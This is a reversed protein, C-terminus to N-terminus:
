DEKEKENPQESDASIETDTEPPCDAKADVNFYEGEDKTMELFIDELSMDDATMQYIPCKADALAYFVEERVDVRERTGICVSFINEEEKKITFKEIVAIPALAARIREESGKVSLHLSSQRELHKEVSDMVVLKGKNIIMVTDCVESIESLIHSSIIVTHKKALEKILDRIEIIQMPDLGVTPEDLIIVEPYGAIAQALGVRQKYGKSLHRILRDSVDTIQTRAMIDALMAARASRPVKKIDMVFKLYERVTMDPYVPPLEPLYGILERARVSDEVIDHGGIRATGETPALCGTLINMTTSKGAGNPGLFGFIENEEVRFSLHDLALHTGYRKTLSTVEIM